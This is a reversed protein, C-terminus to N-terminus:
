LFIFAIYLFPSAFPLLTHRFTVTKERIIYFPFDLVFRALLNALEFAFQLYVYVRFAHIVYHHSLKAGYFLSREQTTYVPARSHSLSQRVPSAGVYM